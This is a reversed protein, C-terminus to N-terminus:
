LPVSTRINLYLPSLETDVIPAKNIAMKVFILLRLRDPSAGEPSELVNAILITLLVHKMPKNTREAANDAQPHFPYMTRIKTEMLDGLSKWFVSTFKTDM